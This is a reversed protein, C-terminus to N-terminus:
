GGTLDEMRCHIETDVVELSAIDLEKILCLIASLINANRNRGGKPLLRSRLADSSNFSMTKGSSGNGNSFAQSPSNSCHTDVNNPALGSQIYDSVSSSRSMNSTLHAPPPRVNPVVPMANPTANLVENSPYNHRQSLSLRQGHQSQVPYNNVGSHVQSPTSHAFKGTPPSNDSSSAHQQQQQQQLHHHHGGSSVNSHVSHVSQNSQHLHVRRLNTAIADEDVVEDEDEYDEAVGDESAGSSDHNGQIQTNKSDDGTLDFGHVEAMAVEDSTVPVDDLLELNPLLRIVTMRYNAKEACPNGALFLKKLHPLEQLHILQNLDKIKNQRLYLEQLNRCECFDALSTISNLSLSLVKVNPMNRLIAVNSLESGWCNLQKVNRLDHTRTKSFVMNESLTAMM